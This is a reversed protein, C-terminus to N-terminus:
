ITMCSPIFYKIFSDYYKCTMTLLTNNNVTLNEIQKTCQEADLIEKYIDPDFPPHRVDWVIEARTQQDSNVKDTLVLTSCMVFIITNSRMKRLIACYGKTVIFLSAPVLLVQLTNKM